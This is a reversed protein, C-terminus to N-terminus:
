SPQCGPCWYTSRLGRGLRARRVAAGCRLCDEGERHYVWLAGSGGRTGRTRRPGSGLNQQLLDRARTYLGVLREDDLEALPRLPAVGELFLLESKYVNGIGAAIRQDLLVDVAPSDPRLLARARAPLADYPPPAEGLLDPGVRRALRAERAGGSQLLEAEQARFCVFVADDIALVLSAMREPLKWREGHAYEHVSGHLGLHCRLAREDALRILLHKGRAEVREVRVEALDLTPDGALRAAILRRGALRPGLYAALRHITDGEPM